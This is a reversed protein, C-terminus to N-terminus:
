AAKAGAELGGDAIVVDARAEVDYLDIAALGANLRSAEPLLRDSDAVYPDSAVLM